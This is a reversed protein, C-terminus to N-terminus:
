RGAPTSPLLAAADTEGARPSRRRDIARFVHLCNRCRYRRKGSFYIIFRELGARKKIM